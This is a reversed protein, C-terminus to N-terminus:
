CIVFPFDQLSQELAHRGAQTLAQTLAQNQCNASVLDYQARQQSAGASESRRAAGVEDLGHFFVSREAAAPASRPPDKATVRKLRASM